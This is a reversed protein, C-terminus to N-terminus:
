TAQSKKSLDTMFMFKYLHMVTSVYLRINAQPKVLVFKRWRQVYKHITRTRIDQQLGALRIMM